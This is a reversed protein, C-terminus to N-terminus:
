SRGVAAPQRTLRRGDLTYTVDFAAALGARGSLMVVTVGAERLNALVRRETETDLATTADDVILISPKAALARAIGLRQLEGGSFGSGNEGIRGSLGGPRERVAEGMEATAIATQLQATAIDPDWLTLADKLSGAAFFPTQDALGLSARFVEAPLASFEKGDWRIAGADPRMVGALLMALTSKGSGSGGVILSMTGPEFHASLDDFLPPRGPFGFRVRDLTVLGQLREVPAGRATPATEPRARGEFLDRLRVVSGSTTLIASGLGIISQLPSAFMQALMQFALLSGITMETRMVEYSGLGLVVLTMLQNCFFPVAALRQAVRTARQQTNTEDVYADVLRRYLLPVMGTARAEELLAIGQMAQAHSRGAMMQADASSDVVARNAISILVLNGLLIALVALTLVPSYALMALGFGVAMVASDALRLVPGSATGAVHGALLMRTSLEATSRSSLFSYPLRLVTWVLRSSLEGNIKSQLFLSLEANIWTLAIRLVMLAAVGFLIPALWDRRGQNLYEDIFIRTLSPVLVGVLTLLVTSLIISGATSWSGALVTRLMRVLANPPRRREFRRTPRFALTLGTFSRDMEAASIRRRGCAPDIIAFGDGRAAELVVFHNFNWFLIQPMPLRSLEEPEVEYASSELGFTEAAASLSAASVGDRSVACADRLTELDEHRGFRRLVMALCAAGCEAAEMQLVSPM